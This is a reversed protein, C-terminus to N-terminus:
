REGNVPAGSRSPSSATPATQSSTTSCAPLVPVTVATLGLITTTVRVRM